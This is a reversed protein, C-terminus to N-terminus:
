EREAFQSATFENALERFLEEPNTLMYAATCMMLETTLEQVHVQLKPKIIDQIYQTEPADRTFEVELRALSGALTNLKEWLKKVYRLCAKLDQRNCGVREILAQGRFELFDPIIRNKVAGMLESFRRMKSIDQFYEEQKDKDLSPLTELVNSCKDRLATYKELKQENTLVPPNHRAIVVPIGNIIKVTEIRATYLRDESAFTTSVIFFTYCSINILRRIM